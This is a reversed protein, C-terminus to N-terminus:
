RFTIKRCHGMPWFVICFMEGIIYKIRKICYPPYRLVKVSENLMEM